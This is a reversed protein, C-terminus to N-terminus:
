VADFLALEDPTPRDFRERAWYELIHRPIVVISDPAANRADLRAWLEDIPVDLFRLCIEAGVERARRRAEDREARSWFGHELIVSVGRSLLEVAFTWQLTEVRGRADPDWLDNGLAVMWEDPSLRVAGTVSEIARAETTKGAGPLGCMLTLRATV